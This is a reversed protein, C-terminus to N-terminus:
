RAIPPEFGRREAMQQMKARDGETQGAYVHAPIQSQPHMAHQKQEPTLYKLYIETTKISAHGLIQQLDYIYGGQRLYNVAFFHRLDHFRFRVPPKQRQRWARFNAAFNRFPQGDGHWFVLTSITHRPTGALTGAADSLLPGDLPITRPADTKTRTLSIVGRNLEVQRWQLGLIEGQRMGTQSALAIVKSFSSKAEIAKQVEELTPLDIPLNRTRVLSRDYELAPNHECLGWGIASAFVRSIATLDNRITRNSAIKKRAGILAAIDRKTIADIYKGDLHSRVQRFTVLYRTATRPKLAGPMVEICYRGVADEWTTRAHGYFRAHDLEDKIGSARKRAEVISATRLSRRIDQGDVQFRAWWTKGRRYLNKDAM